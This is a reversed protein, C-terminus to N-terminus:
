VAPASPIKASPKSDPEPRHLEIAEDGYDPIDCRGEVEATSLAELWNQDPDAQADPAAPAANARVVGVIEV